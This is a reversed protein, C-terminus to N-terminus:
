VLYMNFYKDNQVNISKLTITNESETPVELGSKKSYYMNYCISSVPESNNIISRYVNLHECIERPLDIHITIYKINFANCIDHLITRDKKKYNQSDIIVSNGKVIEYKMTLLVKEKTKLIDRCIIKFPYKSSIYKSITSKGSAPPGVLIIMVQKHVKILEDLNDEFNDNNIQEEFLKYKPREIVENFNLPLKETSFKFKNNINNMINLAFKYDCDSFNKYSVADGVYFSNEFDIDIKVDKIFKEFMLISPKRYKNLGRYVLVPVKIENFVYTLKQTLDSLSLSNNTFIVIMYNKEHYDILLEKYGKVIEYDDVGKSLKRGNKPRIITHDLDFSAVKNLNKFEFKNFFLVDCM